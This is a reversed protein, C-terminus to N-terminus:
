AFQTIPPKDPSASTAAVQPEARVLTSLKHLFEAAMVLSVCAAAVASNTSYYNYTWFLFVCLAKMLSTSLFVLTLIFDREKSLEQGKYASHAHAASGVLIGGSAIVIIPSSYRYSNTGVLLICVVLSLTIATKLHCKQQLGDVDKLEPMKLIDSSAPGDVASPESGEVLGAYAKYCMSGLFYAIAVSLLMLVFCVFADRGDMFFQVGNALGNYANVTALFAITGFVIARSHRKFTATSVVPTYLLLPTVITAVIVVYSATVCAINDYRGNMWIAMVLLQVGALFMAVRVSKGTKCGCLFRPLRITIETKPEPQSPLPVDEYPPPPPPHANAAAPQSPPPEFTETM